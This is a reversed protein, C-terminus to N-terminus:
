RCIDELIADKDYEVSLGDTKKSYYVEHVKIEIPLQLMNKFTEPKVSIYANGVVGDINQSEETPTATRWTTNYIDALYRLIAGQVKLGAYTKTIVLDSVWQKVMDKTILPISQKFNEIMSFVRETATNIANPYRELYWEKWESLSHGDFEQILDSLQGVVPPRTGQSNQNALNMIQTSYKPFNPIEADLLSFLEISKMKEKIIM